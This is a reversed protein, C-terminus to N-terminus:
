CFKTDRWDYKSNDNMWYNDLKNKFDNVSNANVIEEPLGNWISAIRSTFFHKKLNSHFTPLRLKKNHGRTNIDRHYQTVPYFDDNGVKSLKNYMTILDGRLRRFRLTPLDLYRLREEYSMEACDRVMKTARKQVREIQEIQEVKWPSWVTGAYELVSRVMTKYILLFSLKNLYPFNRNILGLINYGKNVIESIHVDFKLMRNFTVGLDKIIEVCQLDNNYIVYKNVNSIKKGVTMWVCKNVNLVVDNEVCWNALMMLVKQVIIRDDPSKICRYLKADDAFLFLKVEEDNRCFDFLDNIYIIFLVPGLVSGQPVGSLVGCWESFEGNVKVSFRRETLYNRIWLIIKKNVRYYDLKYLLKRHSVKDFAKEFDTYVVDVEFGNDLAETWDDLIKLLQLTTSRGKVFGYQFNSFLNNVAFHALISEKIFFELLKCAVCCLSVPRYNGTLQRNGKKFIPVVISSKWINPLYGSNLCLYFLLSLYKSISNACEVFVRSFLGDAGASKYKNLKCIKNYILQENIVLEDMDNVVDLGPTLNFQDDNRQDVYVSKFFNAFSEAKDCDRVLLTEVGEDSSEAIYEINIKSNSANGVTQWFVKPNTKIKKALNFTKTQKLISVNTKIENRLTKYKMFLNKDKSKVYKRWIKNKNKVLELLFPPFRLKKGHVFNKIPVFLDVASIMVNYFHDWVRNVFEQSDDFSTLKDEFDIYLHKKIYSNISAYNAKDFNLKVTKENKITFMVRILFTIICHDSKGIPSDAVLEKIANGDKVILLDLISSQQDGRFRTPWCILQELFNDNLVNLFKQELSKSNKTTIRNIWDINPYNFDGLIVIKSKLIAFEKILKFLKIDNGRDSLPSRYVILVSLIINNNSDNLHFCIHEKFNSNLKIMSYSFNCDLYCFIGRNNKLMFNQTLLKYNPVYFESLKYENIIHKPNTEVFVVLDYVLKSRNLLIKIEDMKNTITDVNSFMIKIDERVEKM